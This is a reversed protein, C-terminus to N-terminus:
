AEPDFGEPALYLDNDEFLVFTIGNISTHFNDLIENWLWDLQEPDATAGAEHADYWAFVARCQEGLGCAELEKGYHKCFEEPIYFGYPSDVVCFPEEIFFRVAVSM